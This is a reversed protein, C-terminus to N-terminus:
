GNTIASVERGEGVTFVDFFDHVIIAQFGFATMEAQVFQPFMLLLANAPGVLDSDRLHDGGAQAVTVAAIV